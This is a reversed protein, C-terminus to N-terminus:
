ALTFSLNARGAGRSESPTRKQVQERQSASLGTVYRYRAPLDRNARATQWRQRQEFTLQSSVANGASEILSDRRQKAASVNGKLRDVSRIVSEDRPGVHIQRYAQRLARTAQAIDSQRAGLAEHNAERWQILGELIAKSEAKSCGLAALDRNELSLEQRLQQVEVYTEYDTPEAEAAMQAATRSQPMILMVLMVM